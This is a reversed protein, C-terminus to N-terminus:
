NRSVHTSGGKYNYYITLTDKMNINVSDQRNSSKGIVLDMVDRHLNEVGMMPKRRVNKKDILRITNEGTEEFIYVNSITSIEVTYSKFFDIARQIYKRFLVGTLSPINMFLFKFKDSDIFNQLSELVYTITFDITRVKEIDDRMNFIDSLYKHIIPNDSLFDMYSTALTGDYKKYVELVKESIMLSDFVKKYVKYEEIDSTTELVKVLHNYIKKNYFFMEVLQSPTNIYGKPYKIGGQTVTNPDFGNNAIFENIKDIDSTFDFGLLKANEAVDNPIKGDCGFKESTLAFLVMCVTFLDVTMTASIAPITMSMSGPFHERLDIVMKFFYNLEFLIETLNYDNSISLYKSETYNFNEKLLALKVADQTDDGGWYRDGNVVSEYSELPANKVANDVNVENMDIRVFGVEYMKEWDPVKIITGNEQEEDKYSFIFEGTPGLRHTKVIYYKNIDIDTIGFLKYIERIVTDTGKYKLLPILNKMLKRRYTLPLDEFTDVGYSEFVFSVATPDTFDRKIGVNMYDVLMQQATMLGMMMAIFNHYYAQNKYAPNYTTTLIALRVSSYVVKFKNIMAEEINEVYLLSFDGATRSNYYSVAREGLHNLYKAEPYMGIFSDLYGGEDLIEIQLSTMKHIPVDKPIGPIDEEVYIGEDGVPPEGNLMRIYTNEEVYNEIIDKRKIKLLSDRYQIPILTKDAICEDIIDQPVGVAELMWRNYSYSLFTDLEELAMIYFDAKSKMGVTEYYLYERENKYVLKKVTYMLQSLRDDVMNDTISVVSKKDYNFIDNENELPM